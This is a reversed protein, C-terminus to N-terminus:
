RQHPKIIKETLPSNHEDKNAKETHYADINKRQETIWKEKAETM